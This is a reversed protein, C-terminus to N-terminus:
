HHNIHLVQAAVTHKCKDKKSWWWSNSCFTVIVECVCVFLMRGTLSTKVSSSDASKLFDREVEAERKGGSPLRKMKSPWIAVKWLLKTVGMRLEIMAQTLFRMGWWICFSNLYAQTVDSPFFPTSYSALRTQVCALLIATNGYLRKNKGKTVSWSVFVFLFWKM